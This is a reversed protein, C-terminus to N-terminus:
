LSQLSFKAGLVIPRLRDLTHVNGLRIAPLSWQANGRDFVPDHLHRRQQYQLRVELRVKQVTRESEARTTRSVLCQVLDGRQELLAIPFHVVGVQLSVEIRNWVVRQHLTELYPDRIAPY